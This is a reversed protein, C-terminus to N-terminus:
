KPSQRIMPTKKVAREILIPLFSRIRANAFHQAACQFHDRVDTENPTRATKSSPTSRTVWSQMHARTVAPLVM